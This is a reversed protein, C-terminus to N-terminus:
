QWIEFIRFNTAYNYNELSFQKVFYTKDNYRIIDRLGYDHYGWEQAEIEGRGSGYRYNYYGIFDRMREFDNVFLQSRLDDFKIMRVSENSYLWDRDSWNTPSTTSPDRKYINVEINSGSYDLYWVADQTIALEKLVDSPTANKLKFSYYQPFRYISSVLETAYFVPFELDIGNDDVYSYEEVGNLLYINGYSDEIQNNAVWAFNDTEADYGLNYTLRGRSDIYSSAYENYIGNNGTELLHGLYVLDYESEDGEDVDTNNGYATIKTMVPRSGPISIRYTLITAFEIHKGDIDDEQNYNYVTAGNYEHIFAVNVGGGLIMYYADSPFDITIDTPTLTSDNKLEWISVSNCGNGNGINNNPALMLFKRETPTVVMDVIYYEGQGSGIVDRYYINIRESDGSLNNTITFDTNRVPIVRQRMLLNIDSQLESVVDAIAVNANYVSSGVDHSKYIYYPEEVMDGDDDYKGDTLTGLFWGNDKFITPLEYLELRVIDAGPRRIRKISDNNSFLIIDKTISDEYDFQMDFRYIKYSATLFDEPNFYSSHSDGYNYVELTVADSKFTFIDDEIERSLDEINTIEDIKLPKKESYWDVKYFNVINVQFYDINSNYVADIKIRHETSGNAIPINIGFSDWNNSSFSYNEVETWGASNDELYIKGSGKAVVYLRYVDGATFDSGLSQTLYTETGSEIDVIGCAFGGEFPIARVEGTGETVEWGIPVNEYWRSFDSNGVLNAISSVQIKLNKM